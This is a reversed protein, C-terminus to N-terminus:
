YHYLLRKVVSRRRQLTGMISSDFISNCCGMDAISCLFCFLNAMKEEENNGGFMKANCYDAM